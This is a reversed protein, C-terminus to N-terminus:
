HHTTNHVRTHRKSHTSQAPVRAEVLGHQRLPEAGAEESHEDHKYTPVCTSVCVCVCVCVCMCVYMCVCMCVYVCVYVRQLLVLRTLQTRELHQIHTHAECAQIVAGPSTNRHTHTRAHTRTHARTRVNLTHTQQTVCAVHHRSASRHGMMLDNAFTHAYFTHRMGGGRVKVVADGGGSAQAVERQGVHEEVDRATRSDIV